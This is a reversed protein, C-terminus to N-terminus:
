PCYMCYIYDPWKLEDSTKLQRDVEIARGVTLGATNALETRARLGVASLVVHTKIISGDNLTVEFGDETKAIATASLGLHMKVGLQQLAPILAEGCEKPVLRSLPQADPAALQVNYGASALDHAYECGM